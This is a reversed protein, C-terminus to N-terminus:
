VNLVKEKSPEVNDGHTYAPPREKPTSVREEPTHNEVSTTSNDPQHTADNKGSSNNATTEEEQIPPKAPEFSQQRGDEKAPVMARKWKDEDEQMRKQARGTIVEWRWQSGSRWREDDHQSKRRIQEARARLAKDAPKEAGPKTISETSDQENSAHANETPTQKKEKNKKPHVIAATM